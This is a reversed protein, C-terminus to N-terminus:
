EYRLAAAPMVSAAKWAPYITALFSLLLATSVIIVTSTVSFEAPLSTLFYIVPDFIVQGTMNELFQRIQEIYITFLIGIIAGLFTGTVGIISGCIMFIRLISTKKMGITRLIAISKKKDQVLMILSSIINFAAILIILMLIFFMVNREVRLAAVLSQNAASWDIISLENGIISNIERKVLALHQPHDIVIELDTASHDFFLQAYRLPMFISNSNYEYMGVDFAGVVKFTKIRPVMGFALNEVKPAVLKVYDGIDVGMERAMAEGIFVGENNKYSNFENISTLSGMAPKKELDKGDIGRVLAGKSRGTAAIIMAQAIIIPAVYNVHEIRSIKNQLDRFDKIDGQSSSITIHGNIGLIKSILQVEYGSMVSMVIILTAVGLTIGVLSFASVISIFGEKNKTRLYRLAILLEVKTVM